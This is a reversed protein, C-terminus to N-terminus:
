SKHKMLVVSPLVAKRLLATRCFCWVKDKLTVTCLKFFSGQQSLATNISHLGLIFDYVYLFILFHPHQLCTLSTTWGHGTPLEYTGPNLVSLKQHLHLSIFEVMPVCHPPWPFTPSGALPRQFCMYMCLEPLINLFFSYLM